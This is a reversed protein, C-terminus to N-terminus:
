LTAIINSLFERTKKAENIVFQYDGKSLCEVLLAGSTFGSQVLKKFLVPFNVMGAGPTVNVNKPHQYDKVSMGVILGKCYAVDDLPDIKGDSYYFINAPDYWIKFEPRNVYEVIRRLDSGTANTGGHPKLTIIIKKSEAYGCSERVTKYYSEFLKKDSVGGILLYSSGCANACDILRQLYQNWKEVPSSSGFEGYICSITLGRSKALKGIKEAEDIKTQPTIVVSSKGKATMIGCYKYGANAIGDLAKELEWDDFPRTFCGIRFDYKPSPAASNLNNSFYLSAATIFWSAIFDRRNIIKM